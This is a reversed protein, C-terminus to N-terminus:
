QKGGKFLRQFLSPKRAVKMPIREPVDVSVVRNTLVKKPNEYVLSEFYDADVLTKLVELSEVTESPSRWESQHSDSAAIQVMKRELLHRLTKGSLGQSVVSSLNMQMLCGKKLFDELVQPNKQVFAYREVHAFIPTYGEMQLRYVLDGVHLPDDRLPFEILLYPTENLTAVRGDQLWRILSPSYYIENGLYLDFFLGAERVASRLQELRRQNDAKQSTYVDEFFHPTVVAGEYGAAVYQRVMELSEEIDRAGDDVGPLLHNHIDIM